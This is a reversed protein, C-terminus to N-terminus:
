IFLYLKFIYIPIHHRLSSQWTFLEDHSVEWVNESNVLALATVSLILPWSQEKVLNRGKENGQFSPESAVQNSM